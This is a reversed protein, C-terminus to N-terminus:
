ISGYHSVNLAGSRLQGGTAPYSLRSSITSPLQLAMFVCSFSPGRDFGRYCISSPNFCRPQLSLWFTDIGVEPPVAQAFVSGHVPEANPRTAWTNAMQNTQDREPMVMLPTSMPGYAKVM